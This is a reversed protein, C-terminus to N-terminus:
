RTFPWLGPGRSVGPVLCHTSRFAELDSSIYAPDNSKALHIKYTADAAARPVSYVSYTVDARFDHRYLM